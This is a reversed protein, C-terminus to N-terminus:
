NLNQKHGGEKISRRIREQLSEKKFGRKRSSSEREQKDDHVCIAMRSGVIVMEARPHFHRGDVVRGLGFIMAQAVHGKIGGVAHRYRGGIGRQWQGERRMLPGADDGSLGMVVLRVRTQRMNGQRREGLDRGDVGAPLAGNATGGGSPGQGVLVTALHTEIMFLM